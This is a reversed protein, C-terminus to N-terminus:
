LNALILCFNIIERFRKLQSVRIALLFAIGFLGLILDPYKTYSINQYFKVYMDVIGKSTVTLGFLGKLQSSAIIISTASTFASTVPM